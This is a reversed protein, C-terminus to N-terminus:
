SLRAVSPLLHSSSSSGLRRSDSPTSVRGLPANFAALLDKRRWSTDTLDHSALSPSGRLTPSSTAFMSRRNEEPIPSVPSPNRDAQRRWPTEVFAASSPRSPPSASPEGLSPASFSSALRGSTLRREPTACFPLPAAATLMALKKSVGRLLHETSGNTPEESSRKADFTTTNLHNSDYIKSKECKQENTKTPKEENKFTSGTLSKNKHNKDENNIPSNGNNRSGAISINSTENKSYDDLDDLAEVLLDDEVLRQIKCDEFSVDGEANLLAAIEADEDNQPELAGLDSLDKAKSTPRTSLASQPRSSWAALHHKPPATLSAGPPTAVHLAKCQIESQEAQLAQIEKLVGRDTQDNLVEAKEKLARAREVLRRLEDNRERLTANTGEAHAFWTDMSPVPESEDDAEEM